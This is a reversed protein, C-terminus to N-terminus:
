HEHSPLSAERGRIANAGTTCTPNAQYLNARRLDALAKDIAYSFVVAQVLFPDTSHRWNTAGSAPM